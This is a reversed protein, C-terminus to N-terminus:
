EIKEKCDDRKLQQMGQLTEKKARKNKRRKKAKDYLSRLIGLTKKDNPFFVRLLGMAIGVTVIKEPSFPIWLFALYATSAALMWGIQFYTGIGFLIYSWGNTILWAIGFCFLFRPNFLFQTIKVVTKKFKQKSM